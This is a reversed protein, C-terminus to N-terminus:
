DHGVVADNAHILLGSVSMDLRHPCTRMVTVVVLAESDLLDVVGDVRAMREM